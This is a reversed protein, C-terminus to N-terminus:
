LYSIVLENEYMLLESEYWVMKSILEDIKTMNSNMAAVAIEGDSDYVPQALGLNNTYDM